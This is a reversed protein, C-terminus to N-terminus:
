FEKHIFKGLFPIAKNEIKYKGDLSFLNENDMNIDLNKFIGEIIEMRVKSLQEDNYKDKSIEDLTYTRYEEM